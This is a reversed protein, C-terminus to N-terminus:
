RAEKDYRYAPPISKLARSVEQRAIGITRAVESQNKLSSLLAVIEKKRDTMKSQILDYAARSINIEEEDPQIKPTIRRVARAIFPKALYLREAILQQEVGQSYLILVAIEKVLSPNNTWADDFLPWPSTHAVDMALPAEIRGKESLEVIYACVSRFDSIKLRPAILAIAKEAESGAYLRPDSDDISLADIECVLRNEFWNVGPNPHLQKPSQDDHSQKQLRARLDLYEENHRLSWRYEANLRGLQPPRHEICYSYSLRREKENVTVSEDSEGAVLRADRETLHGCFRCLGSHMWKGSAKARKKRGWNKKAIPPLAHSHRTCFYHDLRKKELIAKGSLPQGRSYAIFETPQMCKEEDDGKWSCDEPFQSHRHDGSPNADKMKEVHACRDLILRMTGITNEFQRYELGHLVPKASFVKRELSPFERASREFDKRNLNFRRLLKGQPDPVSRVYSEWAPWVVRMVLPHLSYRKSGTSYKIREGTWYSAFKRAAAAFSEECNEFIWGPLGM